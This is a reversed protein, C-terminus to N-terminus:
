LNPESPTRPATRAQSASYPQGLLEDIVTTKADAYHQALLLRRRPSAFHHCGAWHPGFECDTAPPRCNPAGQVVRRRLRARRTGPRHDAQTATRPERKGITSSRLSGDSIGDSPQALTEGTDNGHWSPEGLPRHRRDQFGSHPKRRMTPEFGVGEAVDHLSKTRQTDLRCSQPNRSGSTTSPCRSQGTSPRGAVTEPSSDLGREPREYKSRPRSRMRVQPASQRTMRMQDRLKAACTEPTATATVTKPISARLAQSVREPAAGAEVPLVDVGGCDTPGVPTELM